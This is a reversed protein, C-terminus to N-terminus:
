QRVRNFVLLVLDWIYVVWIICQIGAALVMPVGCCYLISAVFFVATLTTMLVSLGTGALNPLNLLNTQELSGQLTDSSEQYFSTDPVWPLDLQPGVGISNFVGIVVGFIILGILILYSKM